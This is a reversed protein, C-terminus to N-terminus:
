GICLQELTMLGCFVGAATKGKIVVGKNSIDLTYAEDNTLSADLQLRVVPGAGRRGRQLHLANALYESQKCRRMQWDQPAEVAM